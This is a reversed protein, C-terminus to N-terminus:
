SDYRVAHAYRSGLLMRYVRDIARHLAPDGPDGAIPLYMLDYSVGYVTPHVGTMRCGARRYFRVRRERITREAETRATSVREVELLMGTYGTGSQRLERLFVSGYGGDRHGETVAFYDLLPIRGEGEGAVFFAYALLTEGEFLGYTPYLGRDHLALISRLPKRENDPFDRILHVNYTDAIEQRDLPRIDLM